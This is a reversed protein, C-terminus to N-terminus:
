QILAFLYRLSRAVLSTRSGLWSNRAQLRIGGSNVDIVQASIYREVLQYSGRGGQCRVFAEEYFNFTSRTKSRGTSWAMHRTLCTGDKVHLQAFFHNGM